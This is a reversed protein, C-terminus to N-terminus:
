ASLCPTQCTDRTASVFFDVGEVTMKQKVMFGSDTLRHRIRETIQYDTDVQGPIDSDVLDYDGKGASWRSAEPPYRSKQFYPFCGFRQATIAPTTIHGHHRGSEWNTPTQPITLMM